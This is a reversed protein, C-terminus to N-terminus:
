FVYSVKLNIEDATSYDYGAATNADKAQSNSKLSLEYRWKSPANYSLTVDVSDNSEKRDSGNWRRFRQSWLASLALNNGTINYRVGSYYEEKGSGPALPGTYSGDYRKDIFVSLGANTGLKFNGSLKYIDYLNSRGTHPERRIQEQFSGTISGTGGPINYTFHADWQDTEDTLYSNINDTTSKQLYSVSANSRPNPSFNWSFRNHEYATNRNHAEYEDRYSEFAFNAPKKGEPVPPKFSLNLKTKTQLTGQGDRFSNQGAVYNLGYSVPWEPLSGNLGLSYQTSSKLDYDINGLRSNAHEQYTVGMNLQGLRGLDMRRKAEVLTKDISNGPTNHLQNNNVQMDRRVELQQWANGAQHTHKMRFQTLETESGHTQVSGLYNNTTTV